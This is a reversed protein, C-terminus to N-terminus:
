RRIVGLFQESSIVNAGATRVGAVIERDNTVVVVPRDAPLERALGRIEDDASLGAPTFRVRVMRRGTAVGVVDAGDFVVQVRIGYRRVLDEMGDLCCDRQDALALDPWGLKAVNYGDVITIAGPQRILHLAVEVSDDLLGGPIALPQRPLGRRTASERERGRM